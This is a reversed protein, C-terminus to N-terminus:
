PSRAAPVQKRAWAQGALARELLGAIEGPDRPDVKERVYSAWLPRGTRADELVVELQTEEGDLFGRNALSFPPPPPIPPPEAELPGAEPAPSPAPAEPPAEMPAAAYPPPPYAPEYPPPFVFLFGVHFGVDWAPAPYYTPPPPRPLRPFAGPSPAPVVPRPASFRAPVAPAVSAARAPAPRSPVAGSSKASRSSGKGSTAEIIVLAVVAVVVVVMGVVALVQNTKRGSTRVVAKERVRIIAGQEAAVAGRGEMAGALAERAAEVARASEAPDVESAGEMVIEIEPEALGPGAPRPAAAPAGAPVRITACGFTLLTLLALWRM